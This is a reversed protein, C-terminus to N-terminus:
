PGDEPFIRYTETTGDARGVSAIGADIALSNVDPADVSWALEACRPSAGVFSCLVIAREPLGDSRAVRALLWSAHTTRDVVLETRELAGSYTVARQMHGFGGGMSPPNVMEYDVSGEGARFLEVVFRGRDNEFLLGTASAKAQRPPTWTVVTVKAAAIAPGARVMKCKECVVARDDDTTVDLARLVDLAPGSIAVPPATTARPAPPPVVVASRTTPRACAALALLLGIARRAM